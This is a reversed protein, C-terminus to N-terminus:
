FEKIAVTCSLIIALLSPQLNINFPLRIGLVDSCKLQNSSINDLGHAVVEFCATYFIKITVCWPLM